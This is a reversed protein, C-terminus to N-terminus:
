SMEEKGIFHYSSLSLKAIELGCVLLLKDRKSLKMPLSLSFQSM